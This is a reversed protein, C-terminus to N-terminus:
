RVDWTLEELSFVLENNMIEYEAYGETEGNYNQDPCGAYHTYPAVFHFGSEDIETVEFNHADYTYRSDADSISSLAFNEFKDAHQVIIESLVNLDEPNANGLPLRYEVGYIM